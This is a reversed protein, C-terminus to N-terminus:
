PTEGEIFDKLADLHDEWFGRYYEIWEDAALMAQGNIRLYSFSGDRRRHILNAQELVKVHKSVAALSMDFPKAIETIGAEHSSLTKLISRRTPDSLAHFIRDLNYTRSEVM